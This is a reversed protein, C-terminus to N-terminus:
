DCEISLTGGGISYEDWGGVQILYPEGATVQIQLYSSYNACGDSDDNCGLAALDGCNWGSFCGLYSDYDVLNCTSLTLIGTCSAVYRFWIDNYAACSGSLLDSVADVNSYVVDGDGVLLADVCADNSASDGCAVEACVSNLGLFFGGQQDCDAELQVVCTSGELCCAGSRPCDVWACGTNAGNWQGGASACAASTMSACGGAPLCCAGTSSCTMGWGAIVSLLDSVDYPAGWAGIVHLLDDVDVTGDLNMDSACGPEVFIPGCSNMVYDNQVGPKFLGLTAQYEGPGTEIEFWLNCLTGWRLANANVNDAHPTTSFLIGDSEVSIEWPLNDYPEGSHQEVIHFGSSLVQAGPPLPIRFSGGSRDSNINHLAYEYHWVGQGQDTARSALVFRGDDPVDCTQLLVDDHMAAWAYVAPLGPVTVGAPYVRWGNDWIDVVAPRYGLSNAGNGAAADAPAVYHGEIFYVADPNLAPDLDETHVQLRKYIDDGWQGQTGYPFPFAGNSANIESRPGLGAITGWGAQDGNLGTTYPDSCGIGLTYFDNPNECGCGCSDLTLAGFGHKVWSIGIQEIREDTMRYMHQAIVPHQNTDDQWPLTADGINCIDTAISYSSIGDVTGWLQVEPLNGIILDPGTSEGCPVDAPLTGALALMGAAATLLVSRTVNM